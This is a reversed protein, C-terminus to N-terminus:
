PRATRGAGHDVRQPLTNDTSGTDAKFAVLHSVWGNGNQTM